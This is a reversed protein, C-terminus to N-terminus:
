PAPQAVARARQTYERALNQDGARAYAQALTQLYRSANPDNPRVAAHLHRIAERFDGREMLIVGANFHAQPYEPRSQLAKSVHSFAETYKRERALLYGLNNHAEAHSPNLELTRRYAAAAETLRGQAALLVAYNYHAEDRNPNQAVASRYHEEAKNFQKLRGYLSILNVHTQEQRPDMELAQRHLAVAEDLRGEAAVSKAKALLPLIGGSLSHVAAMIPDVRPPSGNKDREYADLEAQSEETRGLQRYALGLAYRAAAYRPYRECAQRYFEAARAANGEATYTRGAGYLANPDAPRLAIVKEYSVRSASINGSALLADAL